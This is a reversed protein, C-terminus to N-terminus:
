QMPIFNLNVFDQNIGLNLFISNINSKLRFNLLYNSKLFFIDFLIKNYGDFTLDRNEQPKFYHKFIIKDNNNPGIQIFFNIQINNIDTMDIPLAFNKFNFLQNENINEYNLIISTSNNSNIFSPSLNKNRVFLSAKNQITNYSILYPRSYKSSLVYNNFNFYDNNQGFIYLMNNNVCYCSIIVDKFVIFYILGNLIFVGFSLEGNTSEYFIGSKSKEDTTNFYGCNLVNSNYLSSSNQSNISRLDPNPIKLVNFALSGITQINVNEYVNMQNKFDVVKMGIFLNLKKSFNNSQNISFFINKDLFFGNDLTNNPLANIINLFFKSIKPFIQTFLNINKYSLTILNSMLNMSLETNKLLFLDYVNELNIQNIWFYLNQITYKNEYFYSQFDILNNINYFDLPIKINSLQQKIFNQYLTQQNLMKNILSNTGWVKESDQQLNDYITNIFQYESYTNYKNIMITNNKTLNIQSNNELQKIGQNRQDIIEQFIKPNVSTFKIKKSSSETFKNLIICFVYLLILFFCCCPIVLDTFNFFANESSFIFGLFCYIIFFTVCALSTIPLNWFLLAFITFILFVLFLIKFIKKSFIVFNGFLSNPIKFSILSILLILAFFATLYYNFVKFSSTFVESFEDPQMENIIKSSQM